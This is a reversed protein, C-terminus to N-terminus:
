ASTAEDADGAELVAYGQGKLYAHLLARMDADDEVVLISAPSGM